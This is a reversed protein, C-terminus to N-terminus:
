PEAKLLREYQTKVADHCGCSTAALAETDVIEIQGRSYRIIGSQQLTHAVISVANRRVGIMQALLEQTLPLTERDYLDRARLLWRSLRAEVPHLTNCLLSQQAHALLAQEHRVILRRFRARRDAVDRLAALEIVSVTCPFLVATDTTARGDALTAGGGIVSDRGLLAVAITQGEALNVTLSVAGDHPFYVHKQATGQEGLITARALAATSLHPQLLAFEDADLAQLLQNSPRGSETM